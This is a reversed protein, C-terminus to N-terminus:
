NNEAYHKWMLDFVNQKLTEVNDGPTIAPLFHFEIIGPLLYFTKNNPFVKNTGFLVAPLIEKNTDVALKFAGTHFEKLPENTKNRTGEPYICMHLGMDLVAKMQIFSNRRSDKDKRDVLVSGLKYLTGFIPVRSMEIKAITKNPGPIKTCSVPVDMLTNHNCVVIYNKGEKFNEKGKIKVFVGILPLYVQMWLRFVPYSFRSRKPEKFLFCCYFPILFIFMTIVFWVASWLAWVRAFIAVGVGSPAQNNKITISRSM